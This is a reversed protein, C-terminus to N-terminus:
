KTVTGDKGKVEGKDSFLLKFSSVLSTVAPIIIPLLSGLIAIASGGYIQSSQNDTMKTFGKTTM